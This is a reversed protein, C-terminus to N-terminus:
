LLAVYLSLAPAYHCTPRSVAAILIRIVDPLNPDEYAEKDDLEDDSWDSCAQSSDSINDAWEVYSSNNLHFYDLGAIAACFSNKFWGQLPANVDAGAEILYECTSVDRGFAAAALPSGYGEEVTATVDAGARVMHWVCDLRISRDGCAAAILPSCRRSRLNPDAGAKLLYRIPRKQGLYAAWCLATPLEEDEFFQDVNAGAEILVQVSSKRVPGMLQFM